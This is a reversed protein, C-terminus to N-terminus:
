RAGKRRLVAGLTRALIYLDYALSWNEVYFLDMRVADAPSVDSRGQIQWWGTMGALVDHRAALLDPNAEVQEVPLPRPGVLSMDGRIVNLLQPLEDLSTARLFRGVGTVRADDCPKFFPTAADGPAATGHLMTRFKLMTFARGDRTVRRQRFLAPGSSTTRVAIAAVVLLPSALVTLVLAGGLDFARKLIRQTGSLRPPMVSIVAAAGIRHVSLRTTLVEPLRSSIRMEVGTRRAVTAIDCM